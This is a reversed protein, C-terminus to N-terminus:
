IQIDGDQDSGSLYQAKYKEMLDAHKMGLQYDAVFKASWYAGYNSVDLATIGFVQQLKMNVDAGTEGWAAQAGAIEGYKEFSVPEPGAANVNQAQSFANGYITAITATTDRAMRAQFENNVRDYLARDMGLASLKQVQAGEDPTSIMMSAAQAWVEVTIGECPAVLGPDAAITAAQKAKIDAHAQDVMAQTQRRMEEEEAAKRAAKEEPSEKPKEIKDPPPPAPNTMKQVAKNKAKGFLFDFIGM